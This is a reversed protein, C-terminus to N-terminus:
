KAFYRVMMLSVEDEFEQSALRKPNSAALNDVM